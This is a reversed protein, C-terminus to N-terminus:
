HFRWWRTAYCLCMCRIGPFRFPMLAFLDTSTQKL